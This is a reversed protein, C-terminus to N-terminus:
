SLEWISQPELKNAAAPRRNIIDTPRDNPGFRIGNNAM